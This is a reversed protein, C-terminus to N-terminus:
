EEEGWLEEGGGTLRGKGTRKKWFLMGTGLNAGRIKTRSKSNMSKGQGKGKIISVGDAKKAAFPSSLNRNEKRPQQHSILTRM